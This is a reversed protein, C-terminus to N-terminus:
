TSFRSKVLKIQGNHNSEHECVHFWKAYNNTEGLVGRNIPFFPESEMLWDDDLDRFKHITQNRVTELKELYFSIDNGIILTRAKEGLESAVDWEDKIEQSWEGWPIGDFTNLQYYKETAALHFLMAGISNSKEDMQFDLEDTTLDKVQRLVWTRMMTMMSLMTGIHPTFGDKPGILYLDDPNSHHNEKALISKPLLLAGATFLSSSGIFKRRSTRFNKM